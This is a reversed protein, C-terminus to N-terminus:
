EFPMTLCFAGGKTIELIRDLPMSTTPATFIIQDNRLGKFYIDLDDTARDNLVDDLWLDPEKLMDIDNTGALGHYNGFM